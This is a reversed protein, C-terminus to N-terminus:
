SSEGVPRASVLALVLSGAIMSLLSGTLTGLKGADLLRDPLALGALFISMTFGIGGLWAGGVLLGWTLQSPRKAIRLFIAMASFLLIGVPKGIFLGAAIALAVPDTAAELRLAVGANALAFVPMIGFAVWPHLFSELRELPAIGERVAFEARALLRQQAAERDGTQLYDLTRKMIEQLREFGIWPHAPTMLGLVVGAITPHMGSQFMALWVLAGVAVYLPIKRVGSARMLLTLLFGGGALFLAWWHITDTFVFAIILVAGLDDVIALTLLLVKLSNPIRDGFIAMIGVVFAIDTAMPIAWGKVAAPDFEGLSSLGAFVLAPVIMGGCAAFIPLAAQRPDRLEGAVIERKIELGVVFFFITMLGDNILHLLSKKFAWDGIMVGCYTHWLADYAEAWPSNALVLALVTCGM